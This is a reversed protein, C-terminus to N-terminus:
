SLLSLAMGIGSAFSWIKHSSDDKFGGVPFVGREVLAVSEEAESVGQKTVLCREGRVEEISTYQVISSQCVPSTSDGGTM